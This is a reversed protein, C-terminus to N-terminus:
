SNLSNGNSKDSAAADASATETAQMQDPALKLKRDSPLLAALLGLLPLYACLQIVFTISTADALTGLAASGVGGLGFSLGFFLGSVTGVKGPVLEQAYVVIVSSSSLIILGIFVCLVVSWFMNAYPLLIAFPAAGLISFWIMNRRGFKDALPGGFFTGVVGAALLSFIIMQARDVPMHFHEILFFSYFGTMASLYFFKSFLLAVLVCLALWLTSKPLQSVTRKVTQAAKKRLSLHSKYWKAVYIQVVIAVAAAITFWIIGHQGLPVFILATFIPALAQGINGGVQFISQALGRRAGAALYAVRSAEPHLVSSGIGLLMVSFLVLAFTGSYALLVVGALSFAVGLPLIYPKPRADTYLGILPQLFSATINLTFAIWGIQAYTLNLSEHLIPFMAPIISQISDNLLHVLSIAFIISFVTTQPSSMSANPSSSASPSPSTSASVSM